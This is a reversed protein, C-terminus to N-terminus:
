VSESNSQQRVHKDGCGGIGTGALAFFGEPIWCALDHLSKRAFTPSLIATRSLTQRWPKKKYFIAYVRKQKWKIDRIKRWQENAHEGDPLRSEVRGERDRGNEHIQNLRCNWGKPIKTECPSTAVFGYLAACRRKNNVNWYAFTPTRSSGELYGAM